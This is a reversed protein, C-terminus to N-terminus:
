LTNKTPQPKNINTEINRRTGLTIVLICDIEWEKQKSTM